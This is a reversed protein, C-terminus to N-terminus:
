EVSRPSSPQRATARNSSMCGSVNKRLQGAAARSVAPLWAANRRIIRVKAALFLRGRRETAAGGAPSLFTRAVCLVTRGLPYIDTLARNLTVSFLRRRGASALTFLRPLLGGDTTAVRPATGGVPQLAMYVSM